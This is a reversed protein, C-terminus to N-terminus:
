TSFSSTTPAAGVTLAGVVDSHDVINNSVLTRRTTSVQRYIMLSENRFKIGELIIAMDFEICDRFINSSIGNKQLHRQWFIIVWHCCMSLHVSLQYRMIVEDFPFMNRTVPWKHPSNVPGRWYRPAKINRHDADSYVTSYVITLSTIQSVIAGMIVDTYHPYLSEFRLELKSTTQTHCFLPVQWSNSPLQHLITSLQTYLILKTFWNCILNLRVVLNFSKPGLFHTTISIVIIVHMKLQNGGSYRFLVINPCFDEHSSDFVSVFHYNETNVYATLIM